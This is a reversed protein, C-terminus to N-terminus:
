SATRQTRRGSFVPGWRREAGGAACAGSALALEIQRTAQAIVREAEQEAQQRTAHADALRAEAEPTIDSPEEVEAIVASLEKVKFRKELDTVLASV